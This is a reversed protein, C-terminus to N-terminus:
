TGTFLKDVFISRHTENLLFRANIQASPGFTCISQSSKTELNVAVIEVLENEENNYSMCQPSTPMM